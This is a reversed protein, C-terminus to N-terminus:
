DSGGLVWRLEGSCGLVDTEVVVVMQDTMVVVMGVDVVVLPM